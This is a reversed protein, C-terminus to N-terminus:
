TLKKINRYENPTYGYCDKFSKSFYSFNSYGVKLAIESVSDDSNRLYERAKKMRLETIYSPLSMGVEKIFIKSIYDESLFVQKALNSRTLDEKLNNQIYEKIQNVASGSKTSMDLVGSLNNFIYTIYDIMGTISWVSREFYKDLEKREFVQYNEAGLQKLFLHVLLFLDKRFQTFVERRAEHERVMDKVTQILEDKLENLKEPHLMDGEWKKWPLTEYTRCGTKWQEEYLISDENVVGDCCMEVLKNWSGQLKNLPCARGSYIYIFIGMDQNLYEKLQLLEDRLSGQRGKREFVFVWEYDSRRIVAELSHEKGAFFERTINKIIFDIQTINNDRGNEEPVVKIIQISLVSNEYEKYLESNTYFFLGELIYREWFETKRQERILGDNDISKTIKEAIGKLVEFLEKNKVPKLLYEKSQLQIAKQAYAFYAYSSLVICEVPLNKARIWELLELGNGQPMEIDTLLIHVPLKELILKAKRINNAELVSVVGISEWDIGETIKKILVEDDDVILVNM